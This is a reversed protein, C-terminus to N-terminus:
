AGTESRRPPLHLVRRTREDIEAGGEESHRIGSYVLDWLRQNAELLGFPLTLRQGAPGVLRLALGRPSDTVSVSRLEYLPLHTGAGDADVEAVARAGARLVVTPESANYWFALVAVAAVVAASILFALTRDEATFWVVLAIVVAVPLVMYVAGLAADRLRRPPRAAVSELLPDGQGTSAVFLRDAVQHHAAKLRYREGQWPGDVRPATPPRRQGSSDPAPPLDGNSM